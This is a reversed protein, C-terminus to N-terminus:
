TYYNHQMCHRALLSMDTAIRRTGRPSLPYKSVKEASVVQDASLLVTSKGFGYSIAICSVIM